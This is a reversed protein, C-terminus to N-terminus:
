ITFKSEHDDELDCTAIGLVRYLPCWGVAASMFPLLGFLGWYTKGYLGAAVILTGAIMRAVRDSGGVNTKM